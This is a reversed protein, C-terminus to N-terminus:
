SSPSPLSPLMSAFFSLLSSPTSSLMIYIIIIVIIIFIIFGSLLLIQSSVERAKSKGAESGTLDELDENKDAGNNMKNELQLKMIEPGLEPIQHKSKSKKGSAADVLEEVLEEAVEDPFVEKIELPSVVTFLSGGNLNQKEAQPKLKGGKLSKKVVKQLGGAERDMPLHGEPSDSAVVDKAVQWVRYCVTVVQATLETWERDYESRELQQFLTRLVAVTGYMPSDVAADLLNREAARVQEVLQNRVVVVSLLKGAEPRSKVLGLKDALVWPLAPAKLLLKVQACATLSDPPKSSSALTLATSLLASVHPPSHLNLLNCPLMHLISLALEKNSEYPDELCALLTQRAELSVDPRLDLGHRPASLGVNNALCHLLELSSVRRPFNAGPFLSGLLTRLLARLWSSYCAIRNTFTEKDSDFKKQTMKKTMAAAGDVLRAVLKKVLVIFQQQASPSQLALHLRIFPLLLDLEVKTVLEISSHSEVMLRLGQLRVEIDRHELAKKLLSEHNSFQWPVAAERAMKLCALALKPDGGESDAVLRQTVEPCLKVAVKLLSSVLDLAYREKASAFFVVLPKVSNEFWKESQIKFTTNLIQQYLNSVNSSLAQERALALTDGALDPCKAIVSFPQYKLLCTFAVLRAKSDKPLLMADELLKGVEKECGGVTLAQVLNALLGKTNHKVCDVSHDMHGWVYEWLKGLLSLAGGCTSSSQCFVLYKTSWHLIGRSRGLVLITEQEPNDGFDLYSSLLTTLLGRNTEGEEIEKSTYSSLVGNLLGLRAEFNNTEPTALEKEMEDRKGSNVKVWVYIIGANTRLDLPLQQNNLLKLTLEGEAGAKGRSKIVYLLARLAEGAQDLSATRDVPSIAPECGEEVRKEVISVLFDPVKDGAGVLGAEGLKCNDFCGLMRSVALNTDGDEEQCLKDVQLTVEETLAEALQQNKTSNMCNGVVKRVASKLPSSFYWLVLVEALAKVASEEVQAVATKIRDVQQELDAAQLVPLLLPAADTWQEEVAGKGPRLLEAPKSSGGGGPM